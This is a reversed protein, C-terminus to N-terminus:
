GASFGFMTVLSYATGDSLLHCACAQVFRLALGVNMIRKKRRQEIPFDAGLV